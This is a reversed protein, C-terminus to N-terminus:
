RGVTAVQKTAGIVIRVGAEPNRDCEEVRALVRIVVLDRVLRLVDVVRVEGPHSAQNAIDCNPKRIEITTDNQIMRFRTPIGTAASTLRV